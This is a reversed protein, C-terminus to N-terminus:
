RFAVQTLLESLTRLSGGSPNEFCIGLRQGPAVDENTWAIRASLALPDWLNPAEILLEIPVGHPVSEIAEVCAGGLGLDTVRVARAWAREPDALTGALTVAQRTYARFHPWPEPIM